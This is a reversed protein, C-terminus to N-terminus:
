AGVKWHTLVPEEDTNHQKNLLEAHTQLLLIM